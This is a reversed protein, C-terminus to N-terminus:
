KASPKDYDVEQELKGKENYYKWTGTQKDDTYMGEYRVKGNPFYSISKGNRLGNSYEGKSWLQGNEYYSLWVGERKGKRMDGRISVQGNSFKKEYIGNEPLSDKSAPKKQETNKVATLSDISKTETKKEENGCSAILLTISLASAALLHKM